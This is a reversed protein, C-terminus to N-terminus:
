RRRTSIKDRYLKIFADLGLIVVDEKLTKRRHFILWDTNPLENEKAQSIADLLNLNEVNKCEVSYPFLERAEGRLIIDTGHQGSGRSEILGDKEVPIGTLGSIVEAMDKQFSMGKAKASRVKITKLSNKLKNFVQKYMVPLDGADIADQLSDCLWEIEKTDLTITRKAM